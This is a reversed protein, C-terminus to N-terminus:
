SIFAAIFCLYPAPVFFAQMVCGQMAAGRVRSIIKLYGPHQKAQSVDLSCTDKADSVCDGKACVPLLCNAVTPGVAQQDCCSEM